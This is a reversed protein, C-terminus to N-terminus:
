DTNALPELIFFRSVALTHQFKHTIARSDLMCFRHPRNMSAKKKYLDSYVKMRYAHETLLTAPAEQGTVWEDELAQHVTLRQIPDPVLLRKIFDKYHVSM